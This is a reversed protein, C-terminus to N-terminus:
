EIVGKRYQNPSVGIVKKFATSFYHQTDYGCQEAIELIPKDTSTLLQVAKQIRMQTVLSSFTTNLEQKIMRSLYVPSVPIEEAIQELTLAKDTYRYLIVQRARKVIPSLPTSQALTQSLERFAFPLAEFHADLTTAKGSLQVALYAQINRELEIYQEDLLMDWSIVALFDNLTRVITIAQKALMEGIINEVAFLMLQRDKETDVKKLGGDMLRILWFSKPPAAPLKLFALQQQIEETAMRENLWNFFFRERLLPINQEIQKSAMQLYASQSAEETLEAVLEKLTQNIQDPTVPKLLYASVGHRIATQAFNFEDHGSIIVIKCPSDGARLQQVLELGNMIPMNIDVLLLDAARDRVMELAEEGDGAEGVLELGLAGWQISARIGERIINEDDALVVRWARTM